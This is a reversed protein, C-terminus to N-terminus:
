SVRARTTPARAMTRQLPWRVKAMAPFAERQPMPEEGADSISAASGVASLAGISPLSGLRWADGVDSAAAVSATEDNLTSMIGALQKAPMQVSGPTLLCKPTRVTGDEPDRVTPGGGPNDTKSMGKGTQM